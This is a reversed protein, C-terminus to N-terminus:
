CMLFWEMSPGQSSSISCATSYWILEKAVKYPAIIETSFSKCFSQMLCMVELFVAKCSNKQDHTQQWIHGRDIPLCFAITVWGLLSKTYLQKRLYMWPGSVNQIQQTRKFSPCRNQNSSWRKGARSQSFCIAKMPLLWIMTRQQQCLVKRLLESSESSNMKARCFSWDNM